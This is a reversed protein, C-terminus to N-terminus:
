RHGRLAFAEGAAPWGPEPGQLSLPARACVWPRSCSLGSHQARIWPSEGLVRSLLPTSPVACGWPNWSRDGWLSLDFSAGRSQLRSDSYCRSWHGGDVLKAASTSGLKGCPHRTGGARRPCLHLGSDWGM